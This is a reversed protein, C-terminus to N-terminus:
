KSGGAANLVLEDVLARGAGPLADISRVLVYRERVAWSDNIGVLAIQMTKMHRRAASEPLIGIGVGAEIMRCMAEFSRLKVRLAREYGNKEMLGRLFALLTSGEHLGIHEFALTDAFAVSKRKALEHGLPVALLLRDTSFRIAELGTQDIDGSVIGLDATGDRIARVIDHTLREQLDITVGPRSALFHALIEPMFETVATTNAFIRVHGSRDNNPGTFDDRLYDVQRLIIRAHRLLTEGSQTLSVGKNGRYLLQSELSDELARIRASAAPPSLFVQAAGQTLNGAEAIHVFLRLDTFDFHM